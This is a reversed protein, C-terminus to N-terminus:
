LRAVDVDFHEVETALREKKATPMEYITKEIHEEVKKDLEADERAIRKAQHEILSPEYDVCGSAAMDERRQTKSTIIRGTTPSQYAPFNTADISFMCASIVRHAQANCECTQPEDINSLKIFRDFKHGNQCLMEYLPM